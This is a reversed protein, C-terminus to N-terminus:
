EAQKKYNAKVAEIFLKNQDNRLPVSFMPKGDSPSIRYIHMPDTSYAPSGPNNIWWDLVSIFCLTYKLLNANNANTNATKNQGGLLVDLRKSVENQIGFKYHEWPNEILQVPGRSGAQKDCENIVLTLYKRAYDTRHFLPRYKSEDSPHELILQDFKFNPMFHYTTQWLLSTITRKGIHSKDFDPQSYVSNVLDILPECYLREFSDERYAAWDDMVATITDAGQKVGDQSAFKINRCGQFCDEIIHQLVMIVQLPNEPSLLNFGDEFKYLPQFYPFMDPHEDLEAFGAKPFLQDLLKLGTIVTQDKVGKQPPAAKPKPAEKQEEKPKEPLLLDFKHLETFKLVEAVKVSFFAPYPEFTDSCMRMILPYMKKIIETDIYLWETIAQKAMNSLKDKPSDPYAVQDNYIEKILKPIKNNGYYYITIIPKYIAKTYQILDCVLIPGPANELTAYEAKIGSMGWSAIMRLFKFKVDGGNVIKSKYTAPAIQILTKIVTIFTEMHEIDKKMKYQYFEPLVKETGNKQLSRIFNFIGYNPKIKYEPSMMLKDVANCFKKSAPPLDERIHRRPAQYTTNPKSGSGSGGAGGSGSGSNRVIRGQGHSGGKQQGSSASTTREYLVEGGLKKAMVAAEKEDILGINKRTKDLTGPEWDATKNIEDAM